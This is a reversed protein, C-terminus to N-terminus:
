ENLIMSLTQEDIDLLKVKSLRKFVEKWDENVSFVEKLLSIADETKNYKLLTVASWFKLEIVDPASDMAKKYENMADQFKGQAVFEDGKNAHLYAEHVKILRKLEELPRPHDEVRLDLVKVWSPEMQRTRVVVMAASQMGRIDGGAAEAAELAKMLRHPLSGESKEFADAMAPWVNKNRMLNAQVSFGNGIIHGAEPICNKGTHVAIRGESDLMAVQRVEPNPDISLLATLAEKPTKGSRMLFLGLPGYSIEAISQTAVVGVGTEAWSVVSGVSFWHSQVAVGMLGEDKDIAIISYTAVPRIILNKLNSSYSRM